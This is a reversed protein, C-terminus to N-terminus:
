QGLLDHKFHEYIMVMALTDLECYQKLSQTIEDRENESMDYFQLKAYATLAAGGDAISEKQLGSVLADAQDTSWDKFIPELLEYPNVVREGEKKVWIHDSRFNESTVQIQNIPKRYKEQLFESANLSAPLVYKISNSGGTGPNYIYDVYVQRLDIMSREGAWLFNDADDKKYTITKLFDILENKDPEDSDDLQVIIHNLITNEHTAFRFISGHDNELTKKLQRAFGFNPFEGAKNNIYEPTHTITGDSNYRHHSFQFAVKSM